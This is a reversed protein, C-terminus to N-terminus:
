QVVDGRCVQLREAKRYRTGSSQRPVGGHAWRCGETAAQDSGQRKAMRCTNNAVEIQQAAM